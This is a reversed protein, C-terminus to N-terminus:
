LELLMKVLQSILIRQVADRVGDVSGWVAGDTIVYCVRISERYVSVYFRQLLIFQPEFSQPQLWIRSQPSVVIKSRYCYLGDSANLWRRM